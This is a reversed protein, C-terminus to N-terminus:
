NFCDLNQYKAQPDWPAHNLYCYYNGPIQFGYHEAISVAIKLRQHEFNYLNQLAYNDTPFVQTQKALECADDLMDTLVYTVIQQTEPKLSDPQCGFTEFFSYAWNHESAIAAYKIMPVSLLGACALVALITLITSKM